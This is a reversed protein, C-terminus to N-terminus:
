FKALEKIAGEMMDKYEQIIEPHTNKLWRLFPKNMNNKRGM